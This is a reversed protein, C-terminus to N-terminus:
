AGFQAIFRRDIGDKWRWVWAGSISFGGWAALAYKRGTSLLYLARKQPQWPKLTQGQCIARLNEALPPGARVAFVGSKPRSDAYAAVDGAAFVFPHSRSQQKANVRIFGAEDTALGSAAPWEPAAAGTAVLIADAAIESGDDLRVHGPLLALARRGGLHEIGQAALLMIAKRRMLFPFGALPQPNSGVLTLRAHNLGEAAFRTQIAFALEVAAAGDGVIALKFDDQRAKELLGPWAAVFGEIPRIPLGHAATGTPQSPDAVPGTDLSLYDFAINEGSACRVQKADLDLGTCATQVFRAGARGALAALALSCDEIAYHGAIWGPLMGSYIQCPYPSVLTVQTDAFPAAALAALVHVHAHGGGALVLQKVGAGRRGVIQGPRLERRLFPPNRARHATGPCHAPLRAQRLGRCGEQWSRHLGGRGHASLAPHQRGM